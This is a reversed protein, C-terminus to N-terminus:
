VGGRGLGIKLPLSPTGQEGLFFGRRLCPSTNKGQRFHERQGARNAAGREWCRRLPALGSERFSYEQGCVVGEYEKKLRQERREKTTETKHTIVAGHREFAHKSPPLNINEKQPKM